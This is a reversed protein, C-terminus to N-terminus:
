TRVPVKLTTGRFLQLARQLAQLALSLLATCHLSQLAAAAVRLRAHSPWAPRVRPLQLHLPQVPM